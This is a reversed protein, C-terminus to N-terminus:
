VQQKNCSRGAQGAIVVINRPRCQEYYTRQRGAVGCIGRKTESRDLGRKDIQEDNEYLLEVRLGNDSFLNCHCNVDKDGHLFSDKLGGTIGLSQLWDTLGNEVKIAQVNKRLEALQKHISNSHDTLNM